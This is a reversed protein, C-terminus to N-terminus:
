PATRRLYGAWEVFVDAAKLERDAFIESRSLLSALGNQILAHSGLEIYPRLHLPRFSDARRRVVCRTYLPRLKVM